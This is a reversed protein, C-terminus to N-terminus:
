QNKATCKIALTKLCGKIQIETVLDSLLSDINVKLKLM